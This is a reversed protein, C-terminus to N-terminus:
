MSLDVCTLHTVIHSTRFVKRYLAWGFYSGWGIEPDNSSYNPAPPLRDGSKVHRRVTGGESSLHAAMHSVHQQWTEEMKLKSLIM